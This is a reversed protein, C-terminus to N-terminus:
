MTGLLYIGRLSMGLVIAPLVSLCFNFSIADPSEPSWIIANENDSPTLFSGDLLISFLSWSSQARIKSRGAEDMPTFSLKKRRPPSEILAICSTAAARAIPIEKVTLVMKLRGVRESIANTATLLNVVGTSTSGNERTLAALGILASRESTALFHPM